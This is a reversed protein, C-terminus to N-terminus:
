RGIVQVAFRHWAILCGTWAWHSLAGVSGAFVGIKWASPKSDDGETKTLLIRLATMGWRRFKRHDRLLMALKDSHEEVTDEVHSLREQIDPLAGKLGMAPNGHLLNASLIAAQAGDRSVDGINDLKDNIRNLEPRMRDDIRADIEGATLYERMEGM